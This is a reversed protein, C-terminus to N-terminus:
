PIKVLELGCALAGANDSLRDPVYRLFKAAGLPHFRRIVDWKEGVRGHLRHVTGYMDSRIAALDPHTVLDYCSSLCDCCFDSSKWLVLDDDMVVQDAAAKTAPKLDIPYRLRHADGLLYVSRDFHDPRALLVNLLRQVPWKIEIPEFRAERIRFNRSPLVADGTRRDKCPPRRRREDVSEIAVRHLAGHVKRVFHGIEVHFVNALLGRSNLSAKPATHSRSVINKHNLTKYIFERM